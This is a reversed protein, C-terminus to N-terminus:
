FLLLFVLCPNAIVMSFWSLDLLDMYHVIFFRQTAYQIWIIHTTSLQVNGLKFLAKHRGERHWIDGLFNNKGSCFLDRYYINFYYLYPSCWLVIYSISSILRYCGHKLECKFTQTYSKIQKLWWRDNAKINKGHYSSITSM